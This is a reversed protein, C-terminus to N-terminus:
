TARYLLIKLYDAQPFAVPHDHEPPLDAELAFGPGLTKTVLDAFV